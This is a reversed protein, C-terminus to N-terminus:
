NWRFLLLLLLLLLLLRGSNRSWARSRNEWWGVDVRSVDTLVRIRVLCRCGWM